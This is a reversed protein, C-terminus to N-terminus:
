ELATSEIVVIWEASGPDFAGVTRPYGLVFAGVVGHGRSLGLPLATSWTADLAAASGDALEGSPLFRDTLPMPRAPCGTALESAPRWETPFAIEGRGAWVVGGAFAVVGTRRSVLGLAGFDSPPVHFAFPFPDATPRVAYSGASVYPPAYPALAKRAEAETPSSAVGCRINWGLPKKTQYDLRVVTTCFPGGALRAIADAATSCTSAGDLPAVDAHGDVAADGPTEGVVRGSCGAVVVVAFWVARSMPARYGRRRVAGLAVESTM